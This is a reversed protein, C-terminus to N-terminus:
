PSAKPGTAGFRMDSYTISPVVNRNGRLVRRSRRKLVAVPQEHM